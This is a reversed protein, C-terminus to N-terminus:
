NRGRYANSKMRCPENSFMLDSEFHLLFSHSDGNKKTDQIIQMGPTMRFEGIENIKFRWSLEKKTRVPRVFYEYQIILHDVYLAIIHIGSKIGRRYHFDDKSSCIM